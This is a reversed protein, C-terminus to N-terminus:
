SILYMMIILIKYSINIFKSMNVVHDWLSRQSLAIKHILQADYEILRFRKKSNEIYRGLSILIVISVNFLETVRDCYIFEPECVSM